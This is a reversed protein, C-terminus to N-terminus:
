AVSFPSTYPTSLANLDDFEMKSFMPSRSLGSPFLTSKSMRKRPGGDPMSKM